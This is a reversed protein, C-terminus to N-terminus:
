HKDKKITAMGKEFGIMTKAILKQASLQEILADLIQHKGEHDLSFMMGDIFESMFEVRYKVAEKSLLSM